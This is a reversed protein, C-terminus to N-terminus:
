KKRTKEKRKEKTQKFKPNFFGNHNKILNQAAHKKFINEKGEITGSKINEKDNLKWNKPEEQKEKRKKKRKNLNSTSLLMTTRSM